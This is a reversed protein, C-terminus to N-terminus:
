TGKNTTRRSKKVQLININIVNELHYHKYKQKEEMLIMKYNNVKLKMM